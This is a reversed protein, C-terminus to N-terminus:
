VKKRVVIRMIDKCTLIQSTTNDTLVIDFLMSPSVLENAVFTYNVVGNVADHKEMNKSHVLNTVDRWKIAVSYNTLDIPRFTISDVCTTQLTSGTDGAVFDTM